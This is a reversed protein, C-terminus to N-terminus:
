DSNRARETEDACWRKWLGRLANEVNAAAAREDRLPSRSVRERLTRRLERLRALDAALAAALSVYRDPTGAILDALGAATLLSVGLRSVHRDGALAVVPVGMWLLDCTTTVGNYPFPDLGVDVEGCRRLYDARPGTPVLRLRGGPIGASEFRRRAAANAEGGSVLVNLKAGPVADLVRAWLALVPPTVKAVKNLSGFTVFGASDAPLPTVDPAENPRYCWACGPLRVLQEANHAETLGPPDEFTDVLRYEIAKMGTSHPYGLYTVQVPAPRRAFVLLRNHAMHGTLDVLVDIRDRRILGALQDDTLRFTDRWEAAAARCRRTIEDAHTADSYCVSIVQAPDHAALVPEFFRAVAHERLDPSVYGVRLPRDPDPDNDHPRHSHKLPDAHRRNWKVHADLLQSPTYRPDHILWFLLDSHAAANKPQISASRWFHKLAEELNGQDLAVLGLGTHSPAHTPRIGCARRYADAADNLQGLERRVNGLNVLADLYAPRLSVARRLMAEAERLEGRSQLAIALNNLAEPFDPRSRLVQRLLEAAEGPRRTQLCLAALLNLAHENDPDKSLVSRYAREAQEFRGARHHRLAADLNARNAPSVPANYGHPRRRQLTAPDVDSV